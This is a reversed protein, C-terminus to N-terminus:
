GTQRQGRKTDRTDDKAWCSSMRSSKKSNDETYGRRTKDEAKKKKKKDDADEDKHQDM